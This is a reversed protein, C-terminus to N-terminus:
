YNGSMKKKSDFKFDQTTEGYVEREKSKGLAEAQAKDMLTVLYSYLAKWLDKSDIKFKGLKDKIIAVNSKLDMMKIAFHHIDAGLVVEGSSVKYRPCIGSLPGQSLLAGSLLHFYNLRAQEGKIYHPEDDIMKRVIGMLELQCSKCDELTMRQQRLEEGDDKLM